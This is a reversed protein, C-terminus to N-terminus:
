SLKNPINNTKLTQEIQSNNIKLLNQNEFKNFIKKQLSIKSSIREILSNIIEPNSKKEDILTIPVLKEQSTNENNLSPNQSNRRM